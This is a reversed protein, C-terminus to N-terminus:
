SRKTRRALRASARHFCGSSGYSQGILRSRGKREVAVGIQLRWRWPGLLDVWSDGAEHHNNRDLIARVILITSITEVEPKGGVTITLLLTLYVWRWNHISVSCLHLLPYIISIM